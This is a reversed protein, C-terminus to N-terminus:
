NTMQELEEPHLARATLLGKQWRVSSVFREGQPHIPETRLRTQLMPPPSGGRKIVASRFVSPARCNFDTRVKTAKTSPYFPKM